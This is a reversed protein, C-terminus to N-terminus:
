MKELGDSETIAFEHEVARSESQIDPDASMAALQDQFHDQEKSANQRLRHVVREILWLQEAEPLKVIQRELESLITFNM